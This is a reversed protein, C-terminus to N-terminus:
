EAHRPIGCIQPKRPNQLLKSTTRNQILYQESHHTEIYTM